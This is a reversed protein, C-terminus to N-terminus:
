PCWQQLHVCRGVTQNMRQMSSISFGEDQVLTKSLSSGSTLKWVRPLMRGACAHLLPASFQPPMMNPCVNGSCPDTTSLAENDDNNTADDTMTMIVLSIPQDDDDITM